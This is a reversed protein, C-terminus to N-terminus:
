ISQIELLFILLSAPDQLILFPPIKIKVLRVSKVRQQFMIYLYFLSELIELILFSPASASVLPIVTLLLRTNNVNSCMRYGHRERDGNAARKGHGAFFLRRRYADPAPYFPIDIIVADMESTELRSSDRTFLRADRVIM